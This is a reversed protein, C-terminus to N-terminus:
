SLSIETLPGWRRLAIASCDITGEFVPNLQVQFEPVAFHRCLRRLLGLHSSTRSLPLDAEDNDAPVTLDMEGHKIGSAVTGDHSITVTRVEPNSNPLALFRSELGQLRERLWGVPDFFRDVTQYQFVADIAEAKPLSRVAGHADFYAEFLAGAFLAQGTPDGVTALENDLNGLIELPVAASGCAAQYLNRGLVFSQLLTVSTGQIAKMAERAAPNQRYWNHTKLERILRDLEQSGAPDTVYLHDSAAVLPLQQLFSMITTQTEPTALAGETGANASTVEPPETQAPVAAAEGQAVVENGDASDVDLAGDSTVDGAPGESSTALEVVEAQVARALQVLSIGTSHHSVVHALTPTDIIHLAEIGCASFLELSLMPHAVALAPANRGGNAKVKGDIDRVKRPKYLWDPKRDHTVVVVSTPLPTTAKCHDLVERWIAFDGFRNAGSISPTADDDHEADPTQSRRAKDTDMYGPPLRIESRAEYEEQLERVGAFVSSPLALKNLVPVIAQEAEELSDTSMLPKLIREVKLRTEDVLSFYEARDAFGYAKALTDDTVLHAWQDLRQM